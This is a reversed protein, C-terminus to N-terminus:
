TATALFWSEDPTLYRTFTLGCATLDAHLEAPQLQRAQFTQTWEAHDTTYTVTADLLGDAISHVDLTSTVAGVRRPETRGPRLTDFWAPPHWQAIVVGQPGLHRRAAAFLAHREAPDPVNALHSAMVAADFRDPLDLDEIRSRVTDAARVHALMDPSDDVAVVRHGLGVLPDAIRGVGAGLDLIAAAAPVAGHVLEPEGAVPVLLYFDVACGDNTIAGPGSGLSM